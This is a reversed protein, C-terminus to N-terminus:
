HIGHQNLWAACERDEKLVHNDLWDRMFKRLPLYMSQDGHKYRGTFEVVQATLEHHLARPHDLRPHHAETMMREETSFHQRTYDMLKNLLLGAVAQAQGKLMSSHFDNLIGFLISHEQDWADVGVSYRKSWTLLAM